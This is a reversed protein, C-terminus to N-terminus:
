RSQPSPILPIKGLINPTSDSSSEPSSSVLIANHRGTQREPAAEGPALRSTGGTSMPQKAFEETPDIPAPSTPRLPRMALPIICNPLCPHTQVLFKQPLSTRRDALTM